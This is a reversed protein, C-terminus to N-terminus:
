VTRLIPDVEIKYDPRAAIIQPVEKGLRHWSISARASIRLDKILAGCNEIGTEQSIKRKAWKLLSNKPSSSGAVNKNMFKAMGASKLSYRRRPGARRPKSRKM